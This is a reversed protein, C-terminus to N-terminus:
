TFYESRHGACLFGLGPVSADATIVVAPPLAKRELEAQSGACLPGKPVWPKLPTSLPCRAHLNAIGCRAHTVEASVLFAQPWAATPPPCQLLGSTPVPALTRGSDRNSQCSMQECLSILRLCTTELLWTQRPWRPARETGAQTCHGRDRWM